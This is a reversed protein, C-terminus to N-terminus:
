LSFIAPGLFLVGSQDSGHCTVIYLRDDLYQWEKKSEYQRSIQMRLGGGDFM